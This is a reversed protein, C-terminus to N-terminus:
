YCGRCEAQLNQSAEDIVQDLTLSQNKAWDLMRQMEPTLPKEVVREVIQPEPVAVVGQDPFAHHQWTHSLNTTSGPSLVAWFREGKMVPESLFPDVVGLGDALAPVAQGVSDLTFRTGPLLHHAATVSIVAIHLADRTVPADASVLQGLNIPHSM